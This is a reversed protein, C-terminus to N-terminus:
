EPFVGEPNLTKMPNLAEWQELCYPCDVPLTEKTVRFYEHTIYHGCLTRDSGFSLHVRADGHQWRIPDQIPNAM